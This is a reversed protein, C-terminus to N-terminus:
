SPWRPRECRGALAGARHRKAHSPGGGAAAAQLRGAAVQDETLGAKAAIAAVKDKGLVDIIQEGSVAPNPGNSIWGSILGGLGKQQFQQQLGSVGGAQNVLNGVEQYLAAHQTDQAELGGLSRTSYAWLEGIEGEGPTATVTDAVMHYKITVKAGVVLDGTVQTSADRSVTWPDKGKKVTISTPTVALVPGTVQYNHDDALASGAFILLAVLALVFSGAQRLFTKNMDILMRGPPSLAITRKPATATNRTAPHLFFLRTLRTLRILRIDNQTGIVSPKQLRKQGPIFDGTIMGRM